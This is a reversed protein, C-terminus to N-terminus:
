RATKEHVLDTVFKVSDPPTEPLIGHGLNFIHGPRGAAQDLIERARRRVEQATSLLVAPDLYIGRRDVTKADAVPHTDKRIVSAKGGRKELSIVHDLAAFDDISPVGSASPSGARAKM